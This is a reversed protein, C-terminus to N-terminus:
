GHAYECQTLEVLMAGRGLLCAGQVSTVLNSFLGKMGRGSQEKDGGGTMGGSASGIGVGAGGTGGSSSISQASGGVSGSGALSQATSSPILTCELSNGYLPTSSIAAPDDPDASNFRASALAADATPHKRPGPAKRRPAHPSPPAPRAPPSPASFSSLHSSLNNMSQSKAISPRPPVTPKFPPSSHATPSAVATTSRSLPQPSLLCPLHFRALPLDTEEPVPRHVSWCKGTAAVAGGGDGARGDRGRLRGTSDAPRPPLPVPLRSSDDMERAPTESVPVGTALSVPLCNLVSARWAPAQLCRSDTNRSATLSLRRCWARLDASGVAPELGLMPRNVATPVRWEWALAIPVYASIYGIPCALWKPRWEGCLAGMLGQDFAGQAKHAGKDVCPQLPISTDIAHQPCRTPQETHDNNGWMSGMNGKKASM